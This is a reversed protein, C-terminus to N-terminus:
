GRSQTTVLGLREEIQKWRSDARYRALWPFSSFYLLGPDREALGKQLWRFGEDQRGMALEILGVWVPPVHEKAARGIIHDLIRQAEDKDGAAANAWGLVSETEPSGDLEFAVKAEEIARAYDSLWLHIISKWQHVTAFGPNQEIVRQYREMAEDTKGLFALSNAYVMSVIRSYPDIEIAQKEQLHSDEYRKQFFSWVAYWHYALAYNPRLEIARKFEKEAAAFDWFHAMLTWGLSAHAEALNEDIELAKRSLDKALPAASGPAMWGYDALVNYCDALGSYAPAFRPDRELAQEFYKLAREVSERTRENWYLRGKLYLTFAEPNVTQKRDIIAEEKPLLQVRLAEAVTRSIDSQMALVDKLERDYSEAWLHESTQSDVLQVTIRVNNGVKRVSSELVSGVELEKAIEGIGKVGNKYRNVSTRAIVRLGSIKSMTAIVEETMGDAFYEDNPDPSINTFPLVAIRRKDFREGQDQREEQWPMAIKFVELPTSVNKLAKEGLSELPLEFKNYVHDYVQRTLCVGGDEALSEIRSAVNVADGAIDGQSEVVDGLHLGVRLRIRNEPPLSINIERAARQIDYACRVADLANAFVVLFADGITKVERGDHRALIPRILKRQEEVLALSLVENRQGLATYGVMDTFMIAAM